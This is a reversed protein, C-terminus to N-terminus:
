WSTLCVEQIHVLSAQTRSEDREPLVDLTEYYETCIQHVTNGYERPWKSLSDYDFLYGNKSMTSVRRSIHNAGYDELSSRGHLWFLVLASIWRAYENRLTAQFCRRSISISSWGRRILLYLALNLSIMSSCPGNYNRCQTCIDSTRRVELERHCDDESIWFYACILHLYFTCTNCYLPVCFERLYNWYINHLEICKIAIINILLLLLM